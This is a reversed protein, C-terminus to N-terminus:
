RKKDVNKLKGLVWLILTKNLLQLFGKIIILFVTDYIITM